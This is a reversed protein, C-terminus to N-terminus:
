HPRGVRDDLGAIGTEEAPTYSVDHLDFEAVALELLRRVSAGDEVPIERHDFGASTLELMGDQRDVEVTLLSGLPDKGTLTGLSRSAM